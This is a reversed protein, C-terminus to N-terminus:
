SPNVLSDMGRSQVIGSLNRTVEELSQSARLLHDAAGGMGGGEAEGQEANVDATQRAAERDAQTGGSLAEDAADEASSFLLGGIAGTIGGLLGRGRRWGEGMRGTRGLSEQREIETSKRQGEEVIPNLIARFARDQAAGPRAQQLRRIMAARAPDAEEIASVDASMLNSRLADVNVNGNTMSQEFVRGLAGGRRAMLGAGYNFNTNVGATASERIAGGVNQLMNGQINVDQALVSMRPDHIMSSARANATDTIREIESAGLGQRRGESQLNQIQRIIQESEEGGAGSLRANLLAQATTMNQQLQRHQRNGSFGEFSRTLTDFARRSERSEAHGGLVGRYADVENQRYDGHGGMTVSAGRMAEQRARERAEPSMQARTEVAAAGAIEHSHAAFQAALEQANMNTGGHQLMANVYNQQNTAMNGGATGFPGELQGAIMGGVGTTGYQIAGQFVTGIALGTGLGMGGVSSANNFTSATSAAFAARAADSGGFLSNDSAAGAAGTRGRGSLITGAFDGQHRIAALSAERQAPSQRLGIAAGELGAAWDSFGQHEALITNSRMTDYFGRETSGGMHARSYEELGGSSVIDRERRRETATTARHFESEGGGAISEYIDRIDSSMRHMGYGVARGARTTELYGPANAEASRIEEERRERRNAEIQARMTDFHRPDGMEMARAYAQTGSMGMMQAASMFGESGHMGMRRSLNMMQRDEMMRGAFPGQQQIARGIADQLTPQMGVAMGLGGIGMSGTMAGLTNAGRGTMAMPDTRGQLLAQISQANLGGQANMMGPALMPMQLVGASFMNNMSALGQAGGLMNMVAPNITGRNQSAAAMGMNGMGVSAGLGQSLNMSGFTQAGQAGGINALTEFTTGAMRAFARGNQVASMTEQLNMGQARMNSMTSIARQLDPENALEMFSQLQKAVDRVRSRMEDPSQVGQMLGGQAAGQTIRMVDATNFRNFTERRFSDSNSLDEIQRAANVSAGRSFGSGTINGYAGGAVFGQSLGQIGEGYTRMNIAPAAFNNMAFNQAGQGLGGFESGLFGAVGGVVAGRGGGFRNGIMAGAAAAGFDAFGRGMTGVGAMSSGFDRFNSAESQGYAAQFPTSFFSSPMGPATPGMPQGMYGRYAPPPMYPGHGGWISPPTMPGMGGGGGMGYAASPGGPMMPMMVGGSGPMMMPGGTFTPIPQQFGMAGGLSGAGGGGFGGHALQASVQGPWMTQPPAFNIPAMLGVNAQMSNFDNPDM